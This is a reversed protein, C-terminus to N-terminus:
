VHARGIKYDYAQHVMGARKIEELPRVSVFEIQGSGQVPRIPYTGEPINTVNEALGVNAMAMVMMVVTLLM